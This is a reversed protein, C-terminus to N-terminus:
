APAWPSYRTTPDLDATIPSTWPDRAYLDVPLDADDLGAPSYPVLNGPALVVADAALVRGNALIVRAVDDEHTVDVADGSVIELRGNSAAAAEALLASLYDGYVLRPAFGSAHEPHHRALWRVFHQPDDPFASMNGARVNLLHDPHAAAYALGRGPRPRREVVTARADGHRLLNVAQLAGAFGGGVIVVHAPSKM